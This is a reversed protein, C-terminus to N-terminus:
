TYVQILSIVFGIFGIAIIGLGSVKVITKFEETGPKRTVRIVRWSESIFSRLTLLLQM